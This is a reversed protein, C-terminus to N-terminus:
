SGYQNHSADESWDFPDPRCPVTPVHTRASRCQVSVTCKTFSAGALSFKQFYGPKTHIQYGEKTAAGALTTLSPKKM